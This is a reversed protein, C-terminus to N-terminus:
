RNAGLGLTDGARSTSCPARLSPLDECHPIADGGVHGIRRHERRRAIRHTETIKPGLSGDDQGEDPVEPSQQALLLDRLQEVLDTVNMIGPAFQDNEAVAGCLLRSV